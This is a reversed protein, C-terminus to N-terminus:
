DLLCTQIFTVKIEAAPRGCEKLGAQPTDFRTVQKNGGARLSSSSPGPGPDVTTVDVDAAEDRAASCCIRRKTKELVRDDEPTASFQQSVVTERLKTYVEVMFTGVQANAEHAFEVRQNDRVEHTDIFAKAFHFDPKSM